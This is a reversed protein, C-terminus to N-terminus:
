RSCQLNVEKDHGNNSQLVLVPKQLNGSENGGYRAKMAISIIHDIMSMPPFPPKFIFSLLTLAVLILSCGVLAWEFHMSSTAVLKREQFERWTGSSDRRLISRGGEAFTRVSQVATAASTSDYGSIAGRFVSGAQMLLLEESNVNPPLRKLLIQNGYLRTFMGNYIEPPEACAANWDIKASAQGVFACSFSIFSSQSVNGFSEVLNLRQGKSFTTDDTDDRIEGFCSASTQGRLIGTGSFTSSQFTASGKAMFRKGGEGIDSVIINYTELYFISYEMWRSMSKVYDYTQIEYVETTIDGVCHVDSAKLLRGDFLDDANNLEATTVSRRYSTTIQQTGVGLFMVSGNVYCKASAVLMMSEITGYRVDGTGLFLHELIPRYSKGQALRTVPVEEAGVDAEMLLALPVFVAKTLLYMIIPITFFGSVRVRVGRSLAISTAYNALRTTCITTIGTLITEFILTRIINYHQVSLQLDQPSLM